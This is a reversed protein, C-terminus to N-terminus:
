KELVWELIIRGDLGLDESLNEYKGVSTQVYKKHRGHTNCARCLGIDM